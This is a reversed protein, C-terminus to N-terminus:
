RAVELEFVVRGDEDRQRVVAKEAGLALTAFGLHQGAYLTNPQAVVKRAESANGSLVQVLGGDRVVEGHHDHGCLYIQVKHKRLLPLVQTQMDVIAEPVGNAVAQKWPRGEAEYAKVAARNGHPGSSWFPHHGVVIRWAVGPEALEKDLWALQAKRDQLPADSHGRAYAKIFPNSDIFVLKARTGPAVEVTRSWYRAPMTLRGSGMGQGAYALIGQVSKYYDHNGLSAWFPVQLAKAAYVDEFATRFLVDNPDAPSHSYFNDGVTVVALPAAGSARVTAAMGGAVERQNEHRAKDKPSRGWDGIVLFYAGKEPEAPSCGAALLSLLVIGLSRRLLSNM